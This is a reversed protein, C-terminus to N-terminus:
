SPILPSVSPSSPYSQEIRIRSFVKRAEESIVIPVPSCFQFMCDESINFKIMSIKRLDDDVKRAAKLAKVYLLNCVCLDIVQLHRCSTILRRLLPEELMIHELALKRLHQGNRFISELFAQKVRVMGEDYSSRQSPHRDEFSLKTQNVKLSELKPCGSLITKLSNVIMEFPQIKSLSLSELHTCHSICKLGESSFGDCMSISLHRLHTSCSGIFVGFALDTLEKCEDLCLKQLSLSPSIRLAQFNINSYNSLSLAELHTCHQLILQLADTITQDDGVSNLKLRRLYECGHIMGIGDGTLNPSVGSIYLNFLQFDGVIQSMTLDTINICYKFDLTTIHSRSIKSLVHLSNHDVLINSFHLEHFKKCSRGVCKIIDNSEGWKKMGEELNGISLAKLASLRAIQEGLLNLMRNSFSHLLITLKKIKPFRTVIKEFESVIERCKEDDYVTATKRKKQMSERKTVPKKKTRRRLLACFANGDETVEEQYYNCEMMQSFNLYLEDLEAHSNILIDTLINMETYGARYFVAVGKHFDDLTNEDWKTYFYYPQMHINSFSTVCRSVEKWKFVSRLKEQLMREEPENYVDKHFKMLYSPKRQREKRQWSRRKFVENKNVIITSKMDFVIHLLRKCVMGVKWFLEDEDVDIQSLIHDRLLENPLDLIGTQSAM